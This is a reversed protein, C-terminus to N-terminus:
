PVQMTSNDSNWIQLHCQASPHSQELHPANILGTVACLHGDVATTLFDRQVESEAGLGLLALIGGLAGAIRASGNRVIIVAVGETFAVAASREKKVLLEPLACLMAPAAKKARM